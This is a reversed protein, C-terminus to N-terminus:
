FFKDSGQKDIVKWTGNTTKVDCTGEATFDNVETYQCPIVVTNTKDVFGWLNNERVAALGNSFSRIAQWRVEGIVRGNTDIFGYKSGDKVVAMGDRFAQIETWRVEGLLQGNSGIYGWQGQANQVKMRGELFTPATIGCDDEQWNGATRTSSWNKNVSTGMTQWQAATVTSGDANMIGFLFRTYYSDSYSYRKENTVRAVTCRGSSDFDTLSFYICPIVERGNQDIYGYCDNMNVYYPDWSYRHATRSGGSLYVRLLGYRNYAAKPDFTIGTYKVQTIVNTNLNAIGWLSHFEYILVGSTIEQTKGARSLNGVIEAKKKSDSYDGLATFGNYAETLRGNLADTLAANYQKLLEGDVQALLAASDRYDGLKALIDVARLYDRDEVAKVATQYDRANIQEMLDLYRQRSDSYDALGKFIAAAEDIQGSQALSVARAHDAARKQEEAKQSVNLARAESDSFGKLSQYLEYAEAYKGEAELQEARRYQDAKIREEALAIQNKSDSYDRLSRFVAIAEENKGSQALELGQQYACEMVMRQSEQYDGLETFMASAEAYEGRNLLTMARRYRKVRDAELASEYQSLYASTYAIQTGNKDYYQYRATDASLLRYLDGSRKLKLGPRVGSSYSSGEYDYNGMSGSRADYTYYYTGYGSRKSSTWVEGSKGSVKRDNANPMYRSVEDRSMIWLDDVLKREDASFYSKKANELWSSIKDYKENALVTQSVFILSSRDKGLYKWDTMGFRIRGIGIIFRDFDAAILDPYLKPEIRVLTEYIRIAEAADGRGVASEASAKLKTLYGQAKSAGESDPGAYGYALYANLSDSQMEYYQGIRCLQESADQYGALTKFAEIAHTYDQVSFYYQGIKYLNEKADQEDEAIEYWKIAEDYRQQDRLGSAILYAHRKVQQPADQYNEALVYENYANMLDNQQDLHAAKSYHSNWVQTLAQSYGERALAEFGAIAEDFRKEELMRGYLMYRSQKHRDQADRYDPIQEFCGAASEYSGEQYYGEGIAYLAAKAQTKSDRYSQLANFRDMAERYKGEEMLRAATRYMAESVMTASDKYDKLAEFRKKADDHDGSELAQQAAQYASERAREATNSFGNMGSFVKAADDFRGANFLQDGYAYTDMTLNMGSDKYNGLASWAATADAYNGSEHARTGAQYLMERNDMFDPDLSYVRIAATLDGKEMLERAMASLQERSDLHDRVSMWLRSANEWDGLAKLRQAERYDAEQAKDSGLNRYVEAAQAYEGAEFLHDAKQMGVEGLKTRCDAYDGLSLYLEYAEDFQGAEQLAQAKEYIDAKERDLADLARETGGRYTGLANFAAAAEQYSKEKLLAEAQEYMAQYEADHKHYEADLKAYVLWATAYEKKDFLEEALMRALQKPTDKYGSIGFLLEIYEEDTKAASLKKLEADMDDCLGVLLTLAEDHSGAGDLSLAQRYSCERVMEASDRHDKLQKFAEAAEVYSGGEMLATAARYAADKRALRVAETREASDKYAGLATFASEAGDFDEAALAKGAADYMQQYDAEHTRYKTDLQAYIDWCDSYRGQGFAADALIRLMQHATDSYGQANILAATIKLTDDASNLRKEVTERDSLLTLLLSFADAARGEKEMHFAKQYTTESVMERSDMYDGLQGYAAAAEDYDGAQLLKGAARYAAALKAEVAAKARDPSDKYGGLADFGAKAEDYKEEELKQGAAAYMQEYETDYTHYQEDLQSYIAWADAYKGNRYSIDAELRRAQSDADKYGSLAQMQALASRANGERDNKLASQYRCEQAMERARSYEGLASFASIAEEYSGAEMLALAAAYEKQYKGEYAKEVMATSDKYSGLAQFGEIAQDYAADNLLQEAQAYKEAYVDQNRRLPEDVQSYAKWADGLKGEAFLIDGRVATALKDTDKYSAYQWLTDALEAAEKLSGSARLALVKQYYAELMKDQSDLYDGLRYYGLAAEDYNGKEMQLGAQEYPVATFTDSRGDRDIMYWGAAPINVAAYGGSFRTASTYVPSIKVSGDPGIYGYRGDDGRVMCLGDSFQDAGAFQPKIVTTGDPDIFGYKGGKEVRALGESFASIENWEFDTLLRYGSDILAYLGGTGRAVTRGNADFDPVSLKNSRASQDGLAAFGTENVASGKTDLVYLVNGQSALCVGNRFDSVARYRCPIVAEGNRGIYGYLGKEDSVRCLGNQDYMGASQYIAPVVPTGTQDIFGYLGDQAYRAMGYTDFSDIRDYEATIVRNMELNILGSKGKLDYRILSDGLPSLKAQQTCLWLAKAKEASDKYDNLSVFSQYAKVYSGSAAYSLAQRYTYEAYLALAREASDSYSGLAAFGKYATIIDDQKEAADAARYAQEDLTQRIARAREASDKYDELSLFADLAASLRGAQEDKLAQQYKELKPQEALASSIEEARSASDKYSGLARFTNLAQRLSGGNQLEVAKQYDRESIKGPLANLRESSDRFLTIGLYVEAASEYAEAQELGRAEYYRSLLDSDGFGELTKLNQAATQYQEKQAADNARCYLLYRSADRYDGLASFAEAAEGYRSEKLLSVAGEYRLVNRFSFATFGILAAVALTVIVIYVIRGASGRSRGASQNQQEM